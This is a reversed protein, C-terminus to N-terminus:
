ATVSVGETLAAYLTYAGTNAGIDWLHQGPAAHAEIWGRTDPEYRMFNVAYKAATSSPCWFRMVGRPTKVPPNVWKIDFQLQKKEALLPASAALALLSRRTM